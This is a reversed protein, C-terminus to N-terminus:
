IDSDHKPRSPPPINFQKLKAYLSSKPIGLRQAALQVNRTENIARAIAAREIEQLTDGGSQQQGLTVERGPVLLQASITESESLLVARRIANALERVNGPWPYSLLVTRADIALKYQISNTNHKSLLHEAIPLIDERRERLAPLKITVAALTYYLSRSFQGILVENGLDYSTASIVRRPARLAEQGLFPDAADQLIRCLRRQVHMPLESPEDLFLTGPAASQLLRLTKAAVSEDQEETFPLAALDLTVFPLSQGGASLAHIFRALLEKGTGTEGLVLVPANSAAVRRATDLAQVIGPSSGIITPIGSKGSM